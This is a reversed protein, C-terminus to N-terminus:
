LVAHNMQPVSSGKIVFLLQIKVTNTCLAYFPDTEVIRIKGFTSSTRYQWSPSYFSLQRQPTVRHLRTFIYFPIPPNSEGDVMSNPCYTGGFRQYIWVLSCSTAGWFTTLRTNSLASLNFFSLSETKLPMNWDTYHVGSPEIKTHFTTLRPLPLPTGYCARHPGSPELLNLSGCKM